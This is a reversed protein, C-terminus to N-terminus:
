RTRDLLAMAAAIGAVDWVLDRISFGRGIHKDYLEKGLGAILAAAGAGALAQGRDVDVARLGAYTLGSIAFAVGFHRMKDAAFWQDAAEARTSGQAQTWLPLPSSMSPVPAVIADAVGENCRVRSECGWPAQAAQTLMAFAIIFSNM